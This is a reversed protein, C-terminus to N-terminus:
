NKIIKKSTIGNMKVFYIGNPNNSLDITKTNNNQLLMEGVINYVAVNATASLNFVGNSPNPFIAISTEQLNQKDIPKIGTLNTLAQPSLINITFGQQVDRDIFGLSDVILSDCFTSSCSDTIISLCINYSGPQAYTYSPYPGNIISGAGDGFNWTFQPNLGTVLNVVGVNYAQIQTFVFFASCSDAAPFSNDVTILKCITDNCHINNITDTVIFCVNYTGAAFYTHQAHQQNSIAGDGFSWHYTSQLPNNNATIDIFYAALATSVSVFDFDCHATDPVYGPNVVYISNSCSTGFTLNQANLILLLSDVNGAYYILTSGGILNSDVNWEFDAPTVTGSSAAYLTDNSFYYNFGCTPSPPPITPQFVFTTCMECILVQNILDVIKLCIAHTNTDNALMQYTASHGGTQNTLITTTDVIFIYNFVSLTDTATFTISFNTTDTAQTYVCNQAKSQTAVFLLISFFLIKSKM